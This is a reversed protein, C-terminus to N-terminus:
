DGLHFKDILMDGIYYYHMGDKTMEPINCGTVPDVLYPYVNVFGIENKLSKQELLENLKRTIYVRDEVTIGEGRIPNLIQYSPDYFHPSPNPQPPVVSVIHTNYGLDKITKTYTIYKNVVNEISEDLTIELRQHHYFVHFRVDIEGLVFWLEDELEFNISSLVKKIQDDYQDLSYATMPAGCSKDVFVVKPIVDPKSTGPKRYVESFMCTHSDGFAYITKM